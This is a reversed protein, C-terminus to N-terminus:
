QQALSVAHALHAIADGDFHHTSTDSPWTCFGDGPWRPVLHFHLHQVSQESAPGSANLINVGTAALTTRMTKALHQVLTMTATLQEPPADFIDEHHANPIVVTHGPALSGLPAFASAEPGREVWRADGRHLLACFNCEMAILGAM